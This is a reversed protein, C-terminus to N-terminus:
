RRDAGSRFEAFRNYRHGLFEPNSLVSFTKGGGAGEAAALIAQVKQAARVPLAGREVM